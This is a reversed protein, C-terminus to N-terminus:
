KEPGVPVGPGLCWFPGRRRSVRPPWQENKLRWYMAGCGVAERREVAASPEPKYVYPVVEGTAFASMSLCISVALIMSVIKQVHVKM